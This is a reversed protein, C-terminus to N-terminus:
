SGQPEPPLADGPCRSTLGASNAFESVRRDLIPATPVSNNHVARSPSPPRGRKPAAFAFNSVPQRPTLSAVPAAVQTSSLNATRAPWALRPCNALLSASPAALSEWGGVPLSSSVSVQAPWRSPPMARVPGRALSSAPSAAPSTGSSLITRRPQPDLATQLAKLERTNECRRLFRLTSKRQKYLADMCESLEQKEAFDDAKWQLLAQQPTRPTGSSRPTWVPSWGPNRVTRPTRPTRPQPTQPRSAPACGPASGPAGMPESPLPPRGHRASWGARAQSCSSGGSVYDPAVSGAVWTLPSVSQM